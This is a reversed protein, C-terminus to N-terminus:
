KKKARAIVTINYGKAETKFTKSKYDETRFVAFSDGPALKADRAKGVFSAAVPMRIEGAADTAVYVDVPSMKKKKDQNLDQNALIEKLTFPGAGQNPELKLIRLGAFKEGTLATFQEATMVGPTVDNDETVKGTSDIKKAM